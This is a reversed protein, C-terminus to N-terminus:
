QRRQAAAERMCAQMYSARAAGALPKGNKDVAKEACADHSGSAQAPGRQAAAPANGGRTSLCGRMFEKREDGRLNKEGAEQNCAKMRTQQATMPKDTPKAEDAALASAAFVAAISAALLNRCLRNM